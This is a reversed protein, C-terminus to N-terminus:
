NSNSICISTLEFLPDHQHIKNSLTAALHLKYHRYIEGIYTIGNPVTFMQKGVRSFLSNREYDHEVLLIHNYKSSVIM